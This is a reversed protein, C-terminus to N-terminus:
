TTGLTIGISTALVALILITRGGFLFRSLVDQGFYDTGFVTGPVSLTNPMEVYETSGFPALFPGILAVCILLLSLVAGIQTRRLKFAQRVLSPPREDVFQDTSQLVESM